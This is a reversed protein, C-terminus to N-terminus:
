FFFHFSVFLVQKAFKRFPYNEAVWSSLLNALEKSLLTIMENCKQPAQFTKKLKTLVVSLLCKM